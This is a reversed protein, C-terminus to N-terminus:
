WGTSHGMLIIKGTKITRFYSVCRSLEKADKELSSTGWGTYSSSLIAQAITWSPSLADAINSTYPVTSQFHTLDHVLFSFYFEVILESSAM